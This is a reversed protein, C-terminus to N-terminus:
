PNGLGTNRLETAPIVYKTDRAMVIALDMGYIESLSSETLVSDPVGTATLRGEKMLGVREAFWFAYNPYHTTFVVTLGREDALRQVTQLVLLQNGFDLFTTPEDLLVIQPQQVLARAILTLQREGGSLQSYQRQSLRSIGVTDLADYALEYDLSSPSKFLGVYSTRGMVVVDVVEYPPVVERDQSVTGIMRAMESTSYTSVDSGNISVCGNDPRITRNICKLLTTKGAGNPGLLCWIDGRELELSVRCLVRRSGRYLDLKSIEVLPRM